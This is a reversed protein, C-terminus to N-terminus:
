WKRQYGSFLKEPSGGYADAFTSDFNKGDKLGSMLKKFRSTSSKLRGVFLFSALGAKDEDMQGSLFDDLKTMSKVAAASEQEWSKVAPDKQNLAAATCFGVGEAFWRPVSPSLDAVHLSALQRTMSARLDSFSKDRSKLLTSWAITGNHSWYGNLGRPFERKLVMKGFEGFDYRRTVVFITGNGRIFNERSETGLHKSIEKAVSEADSALTEFGEEVKTGMVRFSDSITEDAPSGDLVLKWIKDAEERRFAVLEDHNLQSSKGKAALRQMSLKADGPDFRAGEDIWKAIQNITADDLKGTPPMVDVGDGRLHKIILSGKSSGAKLPAGSDGGRIFTQFSAMNFDARPNRSIHCRGCNEILVPAVHAAFSVSENGTPKRIAVKQENRNPRGAGNGLESLQQGRNDGDFKAGEAIWTKLSVLEAPTVKLGGKPMSGDVIVEILLSVDPEGETVATSDMLTDYDKASFGGRSQAVHCRGCKANIIPGATKVFSVGAAADAMPQKEPEAAVPEGTPLPEVDALSQGNAVLMQHAKAMRDHQQQLRERYEGEADQAFRALRKQVNAIINASAKFDKDKFELGAKSIMSKVQDVNKNEKATLDQGLLNHSGGIFALIFLVVMLACPKLKILANGRDTAETTANAQTM